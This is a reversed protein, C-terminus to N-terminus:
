YETERVADQPTDIDQLEWPNAPVLISPHCAAVRGGGQDETLNELEPALRASFLVPNGPRGDYSLRATGAGPDTDLLRSLTQVQVLPQDAVMFLLRDEPQLSGAASIGARITYSAGQESEPCDVARAGLAAVARRIEAYRSVVILTCDRRQACLQVLTDLGWRYLPKGRFPSLLKNSGFRRANGSAMYILYNHM